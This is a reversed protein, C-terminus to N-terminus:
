QVLRLKESDDDSLQCQGTQCSCLVPGDVLRLIKSLISPLCRDSTCIDPTTTTPIYTPRQAESSDGLGDLHQQLHAPAQQLQGRIAHLANRHEQNEQCKRLWEFSQALFIGSLVLFVLYVFAQVWSPSTAQFLLENMSVAVLLISSIYHM